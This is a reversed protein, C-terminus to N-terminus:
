PLRPASSNARPTFQNSLTLTWRDGGREITVKPPEISVVRVGHKEQGLGLPTITDAIMLIARQDDVKAFGKLAVDEVPLVSESEGEVINHSPTNSTSPPSFVNSREAFPPKFEDKSKAESTESKTNEDSRSSSNTSSASISVKPALKPLQIKQQETTSAPVSQPSTNAVFTVQEHAPNQASSVIRGDASTSLRPDTQYIYVTRPESNSSALDCGVFLSILTMSGAILKASCRM